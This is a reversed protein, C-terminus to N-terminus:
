ELCWEALKRYRSCFPTYILKFNLYLTLYKDCSSIEWKKRMDKSSEPLGGTFASFLQTHDPSWERPGDGDFAKQKPTFSDLKQAEWSWVRHHSSTFLRSHPPALYAPAWRYGPIHTSLGAQSTTRESPLLPIEQALFSLFFPSFILSIHPHTYIIQLPRQTPTYTSQIERCHM